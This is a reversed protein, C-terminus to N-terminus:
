GQYLKMSIYQVDKYMPISGFFDKSINEVQFLKKGGNDKTNIITRNSYLSVM